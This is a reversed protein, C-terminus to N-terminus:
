RANDHFILDKNDDIFRQGQQFDRKVNPALHESWAPDSEGRVYAFLALSYGWQMQSLYGLSSYGWTRNDKYSQFSENANFVGLGFAVTTLDTLYENDSIRRKEGMLKIHAIEHALIAVLREPLSLNNRSVWIEFKDNEKKGMYFGQANHNGKVSELYIDTGFPSGSSIGTVRDDYFDLEIDDFPVEMHTAVIKLTEYASQETKDYLVPFDAYQPILVKKQRINEEGFFELLVSFANELWLRNYETVPCGDLKTANVVAEREKETLDTTLHRADPAVKSLIEKDVVGTGKCYACTGTGWKGQMNLRIIDDRDVHGKGLCRPCTIQDSSDAIRFLRSFFGM